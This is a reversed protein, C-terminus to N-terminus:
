GANNANFDAALREIARQLVKGFESVEKDIELVRLEWGAKTLKKLDGQRTAGTEDTVPRVRAVAQEIPIGLREAKKIYFKLTAFKEAYERRQQEIEAAELEETPEYVGTAALIFRVRREVLPSRAKATALAASVRGACRPCTSRRARPAM